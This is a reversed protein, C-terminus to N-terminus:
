KRLLNDVDVSIQPHRYIDSSVQLYQLIGASIQLYSYIDSSAQLYRFIAAPLVVVHRPLQIWLPSISEM